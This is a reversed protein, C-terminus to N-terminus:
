KEVGLLEIDYNPAQGIRESAGAVRVKMKVTKTKGISDLGPIKKSVHFQPYYKEKKAPAECCLGGSNGLDIFSEKISISGDSKKKVRIAM